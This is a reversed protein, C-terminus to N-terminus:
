EWSTISRRRRWFRWLYKRELTFMQDGGIWLHISDIKGTRLGAILSSFWGQQWSESGPSAVIGARDGQTGLVVLYHGPASAHQLWVNADTPSGFHPINCRKALGLAFADDSCVQSFPAQVVDPLRGEGWFWVSNVPLLGKAQRAQNVPHNYLLMQLESMLRRWYRSRDGSPMFPHMDKGLVRDPSTTHLQPDDALNIYWHMPHGIEIRLNDEALHSNLTEVLQEAEDRSLGIGEHAMLLVRDKDAYYYVPDARLVHGRAEIGCELLYTIPAVPISCGQGAQVGFLNALQQFHDNNELRRTESRALMRELASREVDDTLKSQLLGPILLTLRRGSPSM